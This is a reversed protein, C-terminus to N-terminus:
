EKIIKKLPVKIYRNDSFHLKEDVKGTEALSIALEFIEKGQEQANCDVTGLLTGNKVAEIGEVTADIGVVKVGEIGAKELADIAGLAMDDNNCIVLEISNRYSNLWNEMIAMAQNRDWNAVASAIQETQIENDKLTQVSVETRIIADQHGMEGEIMVYQIIGDNNKDISSDKCIADILIEGQMLATEKTDTGVYYINEGRFIDEYVPERNFFVIPINKEMASDVISSANTRDVVNVCIADYNLSIFRDIQSNQTRQSEKANAIEFSLRTGTELEYKKAEAEFAEMITAVFTDTGKYISVGIKITKNAANKAKTIQMFVVGVIAVVICLILVTKKMNTAPKGSMEVGM